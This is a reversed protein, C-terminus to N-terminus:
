ALLRCGKCLHVQSKVQESTCKTYYYYHLTTTTYTITYYEYFEIFSQLINIYYEYSKCAAASSCPAACMCVVCLPNHMNKHEKHIHQQMM